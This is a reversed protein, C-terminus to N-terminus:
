SRPHIAKHLRLLEAENVDTYRQTTSLSSHGLLQQIARLDAGGSLLHTAFAHRLAHPTTHSPLGLEYRLNEVRRQIIRPSLEGGRKGLFLPEDGNTDFPCHNIYERVGECIIPLLPVDRYKNGKGKVRLWEGNPADKRKLSLAESIRLGSGYLLLLVARDRLNIWLDSENNMISELAQAVLNSEISKPFSRKLKPSKFISMDLSSIIKDRILFKYFNKLSSVKRAVTQRSLQRESLVSLFERFIYKDPLLFEYNKDICFNSFELVDRKYADLTHEGYGRITELYKIWSLITDNENKSISDKNLEEM